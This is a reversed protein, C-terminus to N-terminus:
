LKVLFAGWVDLLVQPAQLLEVSQFMKCFSRIVEVERPTSNAESEAEALPHLVGQLQLNISSFLRIQKNGFCDVSNSSLM